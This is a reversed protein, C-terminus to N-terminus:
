TDIVRVTTRSLFGARYDNTDIDVDRSLIELHLPVALEREQQADEGLWAADTSHRAPADGDYAVHLSPDTFATLRLILDAEDAAQVPHADPQLLKLPVPFLGFRSKFIFLGPQVLHGYTSPDSGLSIWRHGRERAEQFASLYLSRALNGDREGAGLATFRVRVISMTADIECLCAGILNGGADEARVTFYNEPRELLSERIRRAFPIGNRLTAVHAEYLTLFEDMQGADLPSRPTLTVRREALVAASNRAGRRSRRSMRKLFTEESACAPAMWTIWGPKVTFGAERLSQWDAVDPDKVRVLDADLQEKHWDRGIAEDIGAHAIRIGNEDTINM